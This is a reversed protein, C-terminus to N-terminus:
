NQVSNLFQLVLKKHEPNVIYMDGEKFALFLFKFVVMRQPKENFVYVNYVYNPQAEGLEVNSAIFCQIKNAKIEEVAYQKYNKDNRGLGSRLQEHISSRIEALDEGELDEINININLVCQGCKDIPMKQSNRIFNHPSVLSKRKDELYDPIQYTWNLTEDKFSIWKAEQASVFHSCFFLVIWLCPFFIRM